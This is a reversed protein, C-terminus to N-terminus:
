YALQLRAQGIVMRGVSRVRAFVVNGTIRINRTLFWNIGLTFDNLVGGTVDRSDLDLRSYRM